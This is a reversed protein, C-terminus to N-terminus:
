RGGGNPIGGVVMTISGSTIAGHGYRAQALNGVNKWSGDKYEAITSTYYPFGGTFGGIILVSENTSATACYSIRFNFNIRSNKHYNLSFRILLTVKLLIKRFMGIVM